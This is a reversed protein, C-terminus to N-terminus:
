PKSITYKPPIALFSSESVVVFTFSIKTRHRTFAILVDSRIYFVACTIKTHM